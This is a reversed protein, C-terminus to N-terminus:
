SYRRKESRYPNDGRDEARRIGTVRVAPVGAHNPRDLSLMHKGNHQKYYGSQFGGRNYLDLLMERDRPDIQFEKRGNKWICIQINATYLHSLPSM